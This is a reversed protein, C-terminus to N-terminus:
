YTGLYKPSYAQPIVLWECGGRGMNGNYLDGGGLM